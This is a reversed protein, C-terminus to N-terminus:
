SYYSPMDLGSVRLRRWWLGGGGFFSAAPNYSQASASTVSVLLVCTPLLFKNSM